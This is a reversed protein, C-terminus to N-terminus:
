TYPFRFWGTTDSITNANEITKANLFHVHGGSDIATRAFIDNVHNTPNRTKQFNAYGGAGKEKMDYKKFQFDTYGRAANPNKRFVAYGGAGTEKM